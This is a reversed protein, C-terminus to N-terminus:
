SKLISAIPLRDKIREIKRWIMSRHQGLAKGISPLSMGHALLDVIHREEASLQVADRVKAWDVASNLPRMIKSEACTNAFLVFYRPIISSTPPEGEMM